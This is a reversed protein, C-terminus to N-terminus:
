RTIVLEQGPRILCDAALNNRRILDDVSINFRTAIGWCSDGQKVTYTVANNQAAPTDTPQPAPTETPLPLPTGTPPAPMETPSPLPSPPPAAETAAAAPSADTRPQTAIIPPAMQRASADRGADSGAIAVALLAAVGLVAGLIIVLGLPSRSRRGSIPTPRSLATAKPRYPAAPKLAPAPRPRAPYAAAQPKAKFEVRSATDADVANPAGSLHAPAFALAEDRQPARALPEDSMEDAVSLPSAPEVRPVHAMDMPKGPAIPPAPPQSCTEASADASLPAPPTPPPAPQASSAPRFAIAPKSSGADSPGFVYGCM